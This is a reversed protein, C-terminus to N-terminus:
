EPITISRRLAARDFLGFNQPSLGAKWCRGIQNDAVSWLRRHDRDIDVPDSNWADHPYCFAGTAAVVISWCLAALALGAGVRHLRPAALAFAALPVALPLVDLMYRPGYTHGGWWVSYSAYLAYQAGVAAACWALPSRWGATLAGRLGVIAVAFIPSFVLIGRSPSVLLGAWAELSFGFTRGTGHLDANVGELLPLAGLPHGFWRWNAVVLPVIGAAVLGGVVAASALGWRRWAGLLLMAIAPALQPRALGALLLGAALLIVDVPRPRDDSRSFAAVAISLGLVATETQWLTQSASSWLGTGVGLGVALFMARTRSLWRRATVYAITVALAVVVSATMKAMVRPALPARIDILGARWFPWPLAAAEIASV